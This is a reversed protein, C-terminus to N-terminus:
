SAEVFNIYDGPKFTDDGYGQVLGEAKAKCVYPAFWEDAVDTFCGSEEGVEFAGVLMLIKLFEARNIKKEPKYYEGEYGEVVGEGELYEIAEANKHTELVDKFVTGTAGEASAELTVEIENSYTGCEGGLYECVRVFYAGEGDFGYVSGSLTAPDSYYVYKDGERLPYTPGSIKSWVLKYGKAATGDVEWSVEGNGTSSLTISNVQSVAPETPETTMASAVGGVTFLLVALTALALIKVKM